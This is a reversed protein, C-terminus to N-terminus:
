YRNEGSVARWARANRRFSTGLPLPDLRQHAKTPIAARSAQRYVGNYPRRLDTIQKEIRAVACKTPGHCAARPMNERINNATPMGRNVYRVQGETPIFFSVSKTAHAVQDSERM